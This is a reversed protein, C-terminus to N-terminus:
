LEIVDPDLRLWELAAAPDRCVLVNEPGGEAFAEYMRGIGYPHDRPALIATRFSADSGAYREETITEVQRLGSASVDLLEVLRLDALENTGLAYDPDAMLRRYLDVFEADTVRSTFRTVVLRLDSHIVYTISM